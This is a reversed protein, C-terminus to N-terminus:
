DQGPVTAQRGAGRHYNPKIPFLNAVLVGLQNRTDQNRLEFPLDNYLM